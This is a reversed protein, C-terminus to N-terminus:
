TVYLYMDHMFGLHLLASICLCHYYHCHRGILRYIVFLTSCFLVIELVRFSRVHQILMHKSLFCRWVATNYYFQEGYLEGYDRYWPDMPGFPRSFCRSLSFFFICTRGDAKCHGPEALFRSEVFLMSASM